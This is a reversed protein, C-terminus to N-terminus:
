YPVQVALHIRFEVTEVYLPYRNPLQVEMFLMQELNDVSWCWQYMGTDSVGSPLTLEWSCYRKVQM